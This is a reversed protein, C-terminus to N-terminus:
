RSSRVSGAGGGERGGGELGGSRCSGRRGGEGGGARGVQLQGAERGGERDAAQVRPPQVGFGIPQKVLHLLVVVDADLVREWIGLLGDLQHTQARSQCCHDGPSPRGQAPWGRTPRGRPSRSIHHSPTRPGPVQQSMSQAGGGKQVQLHAGLAEEGEVLIPVALAAAHALDAGQAALEGAQLGPDRPLPLVLRRPRPLRHGHHLHVGHKLALRAARPRQDLVVGEGVHGGLLDPVEEADHHAHAHFHQNQTAAEPCTFPTPFTPQHPPMQGPIHGGPARPGGTPTSASPHHPTTACPEPHPHRLPDAPMTCPAPHRCPPPRPDRLPHPPTPGLAPHFAHM